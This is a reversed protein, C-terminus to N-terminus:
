RQGGSLEHPYNQMRWAPLGVQKLLEEVKKDVKPGKIGQHLEIPEAIQQGVRHMPNLAHQAGQFVISAEAWRVARIKGWRMKLIDEGKLLLEGEVKTKDPLLRLIAMAVTSKGCGSEGAIGLTEGSNLTLDVGRVAPIEGRSSKYTIHLDNIQLLPTNTM